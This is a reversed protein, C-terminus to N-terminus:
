SRLKYGRRLLELAALTVAATLAAILSFGVWPSVDSVGLLAFRMLEIM